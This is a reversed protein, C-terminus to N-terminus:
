GLLVPNVRGPFRVSFRVEGLWGALEEARREVQRRRAAPVDEFWHLRIEGDKRQGWAGVVRGDVWITPGANGNGDWADSASAPLYWAREKWGMSTPDLGPLLAVWPHDGTAEPPDRVLEPDDPALWGSSGEALQVPVARCDALATRTTGLTWGAWWQLDATTGPGFRSLWRHALEAAATRTDLAPDEIGPPAWQGALAWTYQGNIWTGAPRTRVLLGRLGLLMLVRTHAAVTAENRSGAALVIPHRLLPVLEGLRRTTMPGHEALASMAQQEAGALWREPQPLGSDRLLTVTRAQEVAALRRTAAAHLVRTTGPTAVWLTRRMAHHRLLSRSEYLAHEVAQVSPTRMRVLASLYVSVPDSSHLALLDEAIQAVDDTRTAPLLRHRAALLARRQRSSVVPAM